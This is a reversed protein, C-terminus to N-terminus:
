VLVFSVRKPRAQLSSSRRLLPETRYGRRLSPGATLSTALRATEAAFDAWVDSGDDALFRDCTHRPRRAEKAAMIALQGDPHTPV